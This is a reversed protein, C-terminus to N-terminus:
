SIYLHIAPAGQLLSVKVEPATHGGIAMLLELGQLTPLKDAKAVPFAFGLGTATDIATLIGHEKTRLCHHM